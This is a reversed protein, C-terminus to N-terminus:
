INIQKRLSVIVNVIFNACDLDKIYRLSPEPSYIYITGMDCNRDLFIAYNTNKMLFSIVEGNNVCDIGGVAPVSNLVKDFAILFNRQINSCTDDSCLETIFGAENQPAKPPAAEASLCGVALMTAGIMAQKFM